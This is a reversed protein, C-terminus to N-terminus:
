TWELKDKGEAIMTKLDSHEDLWQSFSKKFGEAEHEKVYTAFCIIYFYREIYNIIMTKWVTQKDETSADYKYKMQIIIKRLNQMGTGEPPTGCIDIMKDVLVKGAKTEPVKELLEKIVEFEGMLYSDKLDDSKALEEFTKHIINHAWEASGIGSEVMQGLKTSMQVAKVCCAAVMGHYDQGM